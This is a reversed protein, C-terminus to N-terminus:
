VLDKIIKLRRRRYDSPRIREYQKFVRIFYSLNNFGAAYCAESVNMAENLMLRKAAQIRRINLHQKYSRGTTKKFLRSFYYKSIGIESSIDELTIQNIYNVDIM